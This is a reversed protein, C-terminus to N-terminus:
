PWFRVHEAALAFNQKEYSELTTTL